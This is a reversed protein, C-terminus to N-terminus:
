NIMKRTLDRSAMGGRVCGLSMEEIPRNSRPASVDYSSNVLKNNKTPDIVAIETADIVPYTKLSVYSEESTNNVSKRNTITNGQQLQSELISNSPGKGLYPVTLYPREILSIRCKPNTQVKGLLLQSSDDVNCGGIGVGNGGSLFISPQATSLEIQKKMGCDQLYFNKLMYNSVEANQFNTQSIGCEDEGIRSANDLFDINSSM